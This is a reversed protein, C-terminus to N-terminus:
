MVMEREVGGGLAVIVPRSSYRSSSGDGLSVTGLHGWRWPSKVEVGAEREWSLGLFHNIGPVAETRHSYVECGVRVVVLERVEEGVSTKESEKTGEM